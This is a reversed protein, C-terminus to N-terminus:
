KNFLKLDDPLLLPKQRCGHTNWKVQGSYYSGNRIEEDSRREFVISIPVCWM